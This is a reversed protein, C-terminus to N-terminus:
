YQETDAPELGQPGLTVEPIESRTPVFAEANPCFVLRRHRFIAYRGSPAGQPHPGKQPAGKQRKKEETADQQTEEEVVQLLFPPLTEKRDKRGFM